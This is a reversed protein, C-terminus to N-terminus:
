SLEFYLSQQLYQEEYKAALRRLWNKIRTTTITEALWQEKLKQFKAKEKESTKKKLHGWVHELANLETKRELKMDLAEEILKYFSVVPYTTKDKLLNRIAQYHKPSHSLVLYKYRAWEKELDKIDPTDTTALHAKVASLNKDKVELMIDVSLPAVAEYFDIFPEIYIMETHAGLRAHARQQSYHIKMPGEAKTWTEKARRIWEVDSLAPDSPNCVNHLNDYVVPAGTRKSIELVDAITYLRDDNEIILRDKVAPKLMKYNEVFRKKAAEKDGYVGGIHLIIKHSQDVKLADLFETHYNLDEVAREVVEERNSNLVTYQGPHMSVRMHHKKIKEALRSFNEQFLTVWDLTNTERDSGFPIIDSSIRYMDIGHAINYDLMNEMSILNQEILEVLREPTANAKRTTRMTTEPVGVTLCAYGIKM